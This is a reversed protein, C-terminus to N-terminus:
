SFVANVVKRIEGRAWKSARDTLLAVACVLCQLLHYKNSSRESTAICLCLKLAQGRQLWDGVDLLARFPRSGINALSQRLIAVVM